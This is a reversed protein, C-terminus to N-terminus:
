RHCALLWRWPSLLFGGFRRRLVTFFAHWRPGLNPPALSAFPLTAPVRLSQSAAADSQDLAGRLSSAQDGMHQVSRPDLSALNDLPTHYAALGETISFNLAGFGLPLFESVDTDNPLLRYIDTMMSNSVPRAVSDAFARIDRENPHATEFMLAPGRVGRAELNIVRDVAFRVPDTEAFSKAGLLGLEEGDTILFVIPRDKASDRM